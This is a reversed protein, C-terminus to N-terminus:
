LFILSTFLFIILLCLMNCIYLRTWSYVTNCKHIALISWLCHFVAFSQFSLLPYSESVASFSLWGKVCVFTPEDTESWRCLKRRCYYIWKKEWQKYLLIQSFFSFNGRINPISFCGEEEGGGEWVNAESLSNYSLFIPLVILIESFRHLSFSKPSKLHKQRNM